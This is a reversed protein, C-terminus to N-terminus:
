VGNKSLVMAYNWGSTYIVVATENESVLDKQSWTESHLKQFCM